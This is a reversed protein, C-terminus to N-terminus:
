IKITFDGVVSFPCCSICVNEIDCGWDELCLFTSVTLRTESALLCNSRVFLLVFAVLINALLGDFFQSRTALLHVSVGNNDCLEIYM